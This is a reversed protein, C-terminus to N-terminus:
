RNGGGRGGAQSAFFFPPPPPRLALSRFSSPLVFVGHDTQARRPKRRKERWEVSRRRLPKHSPFSSSSPFTKKGPHPYISPPPPEAPPPLPSIAPSKPLRCRRRRPDTTPPQPAQQNDRRREERGRNFCYQENKGAMARRGKVEVIKSPNSNGYNNNRQM